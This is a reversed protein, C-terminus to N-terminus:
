LNLGQPGPQPLSVHMLAVVNTPVYEDSSTVTCTKAIKGYESLTHSMEARKHVNPGLTYSDLSQVNTHGTVCMIDKSAYGASKLVTACTAKLCHNTYTISTSAQQSIRKMMSAIMNKGLPVNCYWLGSKKYHDNPRQLFASCDSNLKSIYLQFSKVPCLDNTPDEYMMQLKCEDQAHNKDFENFAISM